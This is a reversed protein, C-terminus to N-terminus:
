AGGMAALTSFFGKFNHEVIAKLLPVLHGLRGAFHMEFFNAELKGGHEGKVVTSAVMRKVFSVAEDTDLDALAQALKDATESTFLKSDLVTMMPGIIPAAKKMLEAGLKLGQTAGFHYIEYTVGDITLEHTTQM